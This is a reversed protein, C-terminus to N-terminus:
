SAPLLTQETTAGVRQFEEEGWQFEVGVACESVGGEGLEPLRHLCLKDVLCKSQTLIVAPQQYLQEPAKNTQKIGKYQSSQKTKARTQRTRYVLDHQLKHFFHPRYKRLPFRLRSDHPLAGYWLAARCLMQAATKM